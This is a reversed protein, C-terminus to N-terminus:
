TDEFVTGVHVDSDLCFHIKDDIFSQDFNDVVTTM